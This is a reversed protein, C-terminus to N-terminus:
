SVKEITIRYKSDEFTDLILEAKKTPIGPQGVIRVGKVVFERDFDNEERVATDLHSLSSIMKVLGMAMRPNTDFTREYEYEDWCDQSCFNLRGTIKGEAYKVEDESGTTMNGVLEKGCQVCKLTQIKKMM